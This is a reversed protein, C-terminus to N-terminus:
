QRVFVHLWPSSQSVWLAALVEFEHPVLLVQLSSVHPERPVKPVILLVHLLHFMQLVTSAQPLGL